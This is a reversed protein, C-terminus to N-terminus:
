RPPWNEDCFKRVQLSGETTAELISHALNSAKPPKWADKLERGVLGALLSKIFAGHSVMLLCQNPHKASITEVAKRARQQLDLFSEGGFPQYRHPAKWFNYLQENGFTSQIEEASLGEWAGLDIECLDSEQFIEIEEQGLLLNLTDLTRGSTSCYAADFSIGLIKERAEVAQEVGLSSLPSNKRGQMRGALNWQTQGHRFLHIVTSREM